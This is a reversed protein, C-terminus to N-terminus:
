GEREPERSDKLDRRGLLRRLRGGLIHLVLGNVLLAVVLTILPLEVLLLLAARGLTEGVGTHDAYLFAARVLAYSCATALTITERSRYEPERSM